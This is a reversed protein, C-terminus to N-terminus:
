QRKIVLIKGKAILEKSTEKAVRVLYVGDAVIVGLYNKGDWAIENTGVSLSVSTQYIMKASIDYICIIANTPVTVSVQIKLSDSLPNFPNPYPVARSSLAVVKLPMALSQEDIALVTDKRHVMLDYSGTSFTTPLVFVIQTSSWSVIETMVEGNLLLESSMQSDGFNTGSVVVTSGVVVQAPSISYIVPTNSEETGGSGEETIVFTLANSLHTDVILYVHYSGAAVNPVTVTVQTDDWSSVSAVTKNDSSDEFVALSDEQDAGFNDGYIDVVAGVMGSSPAMDSLVPLVTSTGSIKFYGSTVEAKDAYRQVVIFGSEAETPVKVDIRSGDSFWYVNSSDSYYLIQTSVSGVFRV